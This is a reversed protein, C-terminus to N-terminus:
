INFPFALVWTYCSKRVEFAYIEDENLTFKEVLKEHIDLAMFKGFVTAIVLFQCKIPWNRSSEGEKNNKVFHDSLYSVLLYFSYYKPRVM